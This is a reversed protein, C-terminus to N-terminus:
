IDSLEIWSNKLIEMLVVHRITLTYFKGDSQPKNLCNLKGWKRYSVIWKEPDAIYLEKM